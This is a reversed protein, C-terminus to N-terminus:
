ELFRSLNIIAVKMYIRQELLESIWVSLDHICFHAEM